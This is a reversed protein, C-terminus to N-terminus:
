SAPVENVVPLPFRDVNDRAPHREGVPGRAFETVITRTVRQVFRITRPEMPLGFCFRTLTCTWRLTGTAVVGASSRHVYYTSQASTPVGGCAYTSHSLIQLPRPTGPGPYVRDAENGVLHPFTSGVRVGTGRFGWWTPTVVRYPADVPFCEYAPGVLRQEPNPAPPDRWRSTREAPVPWPDLWADSRYGVVDGARGRAEHTVRIRWYLTNAALFALNTGSGRAREVTRRMTPTWYEDHGTSVYGAAGDLAHPDTHLDLNTLYALPVGTAEAQMAVPGLTFGFEGLGPGHYPRDFSVRWARRDGDPGEYLGYGGWHNYAQWTTVAAVLVVRGEVSPSTVVYPAAAQWGTSTTFRFLYAGPEWGSTDVRVSDRWAAVITRTEPRSFRPAAQRRGPLVPSRWVLHGTGHTYAGIRFAAVRFSPDGTSVRVGVVTGPPAGPRDVYGEVQGHTVPRTLRWRETGRPPPSAQSAPPRGLRSPPHSSTAPETPLAPPKVAARTQEQARPSGGCAALCLLVVLASATARHHSCMPTAM